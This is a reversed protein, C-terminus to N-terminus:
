VNRCHRGAPAPTFSSTAHLRGLPATRPDQGGALLVQAAVGPENVELRARHLLRERGAERARDCGMPVAEGHRVGGGAQAVAPEVIEGAADGGCDDLPQAGPPLRDRQDM